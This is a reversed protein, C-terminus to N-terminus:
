PVMRLLSVIHVMALEAAGPATALPISLVAVGRRKAEELDINETGAAARGIVKLQPFPDLDSGTVPVESTTILGVVEAALPGGALVERPHPSLGAAALADPLAPPVKGALAIRKTMPFGLGSM